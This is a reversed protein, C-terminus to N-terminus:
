TSRQAIRLSPIWLFHPTAPPSPARPIPNQAVYGLIRDKSPKPPNTCIVGNKPSKPVKKPRKEPMDHLQLASSPEKVCLLRVHLTAM